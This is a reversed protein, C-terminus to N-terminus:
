GQILKENIETNGEDNYTQWAIFNMLKQAKFKYPFNSNLTLEKAFSSVQVLAPCYPMPSPMGQSLLLFDFWPANMFCKKRWM